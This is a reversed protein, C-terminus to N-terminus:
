KFSDDDSHKKSLLCLLYCIQKIIENNRTPLVFIFLPQSIGKTKLQILTFHFM